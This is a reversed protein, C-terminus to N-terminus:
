VRATRPNKMRVLRYAGCCLGAIGGLALAPPEPIKATAITWTHDPYGGPPQAIWATIDAIFGTYRESEPLWFIGAGVGLVSLSTDGSVIISTPTAIAKHIVTVANPDTSSYTDTLGHGSLTFTWAEIDSVGIPGFVGDTTITGSLTYGNQDIPDNVLQYVMSGATAETGLGCVLTLLAAALAFQKTSKM